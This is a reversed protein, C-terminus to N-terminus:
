QAYNVYEEGTLLGIDTKYYVNNKTRLVPKTKIKPHSISGNLVYQTETKKITGDSFKITVDVSNNFGIVEFPVGNNAKFNKNLLNTEDYKNRNLVNGRQIKYMTTWKEYGNSFRVLVRSAVEYKIIQFTDGKSTTYTKGEVEKRVEENSRYATRTLQGNNFATWNTKFIQNDETKVMIDNAGSYEVVTAYQNLNKQFVTTGLREKECLQQRTSKGPYAVNGKRYCAYVVKKETGDEFRVTVYLSKNKKEQSIVTVKMGNNMIKSQGVIPTQFKGPQNPNMLQGKIVNDYWKRNKVITGDEFQVTVHKNDIYEIIKFKQGSNNTHVTGLREKRNKEINNM